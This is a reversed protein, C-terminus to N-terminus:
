DSSPKAECRRDDEQDRASASGAAFRRAAVFRCNWCRRAVPQTWRDAATEEGGSGEGDAEAEVDHDFATDPGSVLEIRSAPAMQHALRLLAAEVIAPDDATAITAAFQHLVEEFRADVGKSRDFRAHLWSRFINHWRRIFGLATSRPGAGADWEISVPDSGSQLQAFETTKNSNTHVVAADLRWARESTSTGPM